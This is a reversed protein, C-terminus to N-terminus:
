GESEDNAPGASADADRRAPDDHSRDRDALCAGIAALDEGYIRETIERGGFQRYITNWADIRENGKKRELSLHRGIYYITVREVGSMLRLEFVNIKASRTIAFSQVRGAQDSSDRVYEAIFEELAEGLNAKFDPEDTFIEAGTSDQVTWQQPQLCRLVRVRTPAQDVYGGCLCALLLYTADNPEMDAANLGRGTSRILGAKRLRMALVNVTRREIGLKNAFCDILGRLKAM